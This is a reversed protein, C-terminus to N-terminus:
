SRLFSDYHSNIYGWLLVCAAWAMWRALERKRFPLLVLLTLIAPGCAFGCSMLFQGRTLFGGGLLLHNRFIPLLYAILPATYAMAALGLFDALVKRLVQHPHVASMGFGVYCLSAPAAIRVRIIQGRRLGGAEVDRRKLSDIAM